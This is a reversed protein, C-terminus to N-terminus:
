LCIMLFRVTHCFLSKVVYVHKVNEIDHHHVHAICYLWSSLTRARNWLEFPQLVVKFHAKKGTNTSHYQFLQWILQTLIIHNYTMFVLLIMNLPM